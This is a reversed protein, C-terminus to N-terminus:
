VFMTWCLGALPSPPLSPPLLSPPPLSSPPLPSPPPLPLPSPPCPFPPNVQSNNNNNHVGIFTYHVHLTHPFFSFQDCSITQILQEYDPSCASSRIARVVTACCRYQEPYVKLHQSAFMSNYGCFSYCSLASSQFISQVFTSSCRSAALRLSNSRRSVVNFLSDLRAVPHIIGTHSRNPIRWIRRLIKNYAIELNHIAPCSLAWLSSGYPSM